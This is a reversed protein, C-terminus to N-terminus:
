KESVVALKVAEDFSVHYQPCQPNECTRTFVAFLQTPTDPTDDYKVVNKSGIVHLELGCADCKEKM